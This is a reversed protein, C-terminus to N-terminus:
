LLKFSLYFYKLYIRAFLKGTNREIPAVKGKENLFRKFKLGMVLNAICSVILLIPKAIYIVQSVVILILEAIKMSKLNNSQIQYLSEYTINFSTGNLSYHKIALYGITNVSKTIIYNPLALILSIITWSIFQWKFPIKALKESFRNSSSFSLLRNFAIHLDMVNSLFVSVNALFLYFYLEYFKSFYSYSFYYPCLAGCRILSLWFSSFLTYFDFLCMSFMYKFIKKKLNPQTLTVLTLTNTVIAFLVIIPLIITNAYDIHRFSLSEVNEYIISTKNPSIKSIM